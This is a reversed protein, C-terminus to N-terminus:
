KKVLGYGGYLPKTDHVTIVLNPHVDKAYEVVERVRKRKVFTYLIERDFNKGRGQVVTVAFGQKRLYDAISPGYDAKVIIKIESLGIALKEELFSGTFNGVSFGLAYFVAKLPDSAIDNLVTSVLYVWLAVEFFAILAGIRREGKNILVMRLTALTVEIVKAVFIFLYNM